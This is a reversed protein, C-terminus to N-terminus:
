IKNKLNSNENQNISMAMNPLLLEGNDEYQIVSGLSLLKLDRKIDNTSLDLMKRVEKLSIVGNNFLQIVNEQYEKDNSKNLERTDIIFKYGKEKEEELLLAKSLGEEITVILTNLTQSILIETDQHTNSSTLYGKPLCLIDEVKGGIVKEKEEMNIISLDKSIPVYDLGNELIVTKGANKRGTYLNSWATKLKQLADSNLRGETKLVGLPMACNETLRKYTEYEELIDNLLSRNKNLIGGNPNEIIVMEYSEKTYTKGHLIYTIKSYLPFGNKDLYLQTNQHKVHHLGLIKNGKREIVAYAKGDFLLDHIMASKFSSSTTISNAEKNLFKLRYDNEIEEINSKEKILNIPLNAILSCLLDNGKKLSPIKELYINKNSENTFLPMSGGQLFTNYSRQEQQKTNNLLNQIFGM